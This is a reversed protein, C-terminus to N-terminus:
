GEEEDIRGLIKEVVSRVRADNGTIKKLTEEELSINLARSEISVFSPLMACRARSDPIGLSLSVTARDSRHEIVTRCTSTGGGTAELEIKEGFGELTLTLNKGQQKVAITRRKNNELSARYLVRSEAMTKVGGSLAQGGLALLIIMTLTCRGRNKM